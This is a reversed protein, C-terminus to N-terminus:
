RSPRLAQRRADAIMGLQDATLSLTVGHDIETGVVAVTGCWRQAPAGLTTLVAWATPNPPYRDVVSASAAESVDVVKARMGADLGVGNALRRYPDVVTAVATWLGSQYPGGWEDPVAQGDATRRLLEGDPTLLVFLVQGPGASWSTVSEFPETM